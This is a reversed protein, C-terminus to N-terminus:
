FQTAKNPDLKLLGTQMTPTFQKAMPPRGTLPKFSPLKSAPPLHLVSQTGSRPDGHHPSGQSPMAFAAQVQIVGLGSQAVQGLTGSVLLVSLALCLGVCRASRRLLHEVRQAVGRLIRVYAGLPTGQHGRRTGMGPTEGRRQTRWLLRVSAMQQGSRC